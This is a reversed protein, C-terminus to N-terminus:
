YALTLHGFDVDEPFDDYGSTGFNIDNWSEPIYAVFYGDLTLGFFIFKVFMGLIDAANNQLWNALAIKFSDPFDGAMIEDYFQELKDLELKNEDLIKFILEQNNVLSKYNKLLWDLNLEHLDTYPYLHDFGAM